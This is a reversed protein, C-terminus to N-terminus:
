PADLEPSPKIADLNLGMEGLFLMAEPLTAFYYNESLRYDKNNEYDGSEHVERLLEIVRVHYPKARIQEVAQAFAAYREPEIEVDFAPTLKPIRKNILVWGLYEDDSTNKIFGWRQGANLNKDLANIETIDSAM